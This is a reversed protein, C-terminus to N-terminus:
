PKNKERIAVLIAEKEEEDTDAWFDDLFQDTADSWEQATQPRTRTNLEGERRAIQQKLQELGNEDLHDVEELLQELTM